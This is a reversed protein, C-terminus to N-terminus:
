DLRIRDPHTYINGKNGRVLGILTIGTKDALEVGLSTPASFGALIEVGLRACKMVMEYSLRSSLMVIAADKIKGAFLLKGIAKDLANHRGVDESFSLLDGASSFIAAAHTGGTGRYADQKAMLADQMVSMMSIHMQTKEQIGSVSKGLERIMDSGCIGCSSYTTFRKQRQSIPGEKKKKESLYVNIKNASLDSCYNAGAVDDMSDIIGETFCLGLSLPIEEGPMRMTMYFSEDNIFIELPEEVAVKEDIKSSVAGTYKLVPINLLNM